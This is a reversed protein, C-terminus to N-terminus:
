DQGLAARIAPVAAILRPVGVLPAVALVAAWIEEPSMGIARARTVHATFSEAPAGLAILAGFRALEIAREDLGGLRELEVRVDRLAAIAAPDLGRLGDPVAIPTPETEHAM